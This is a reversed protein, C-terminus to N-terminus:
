RIKRQHHQHAIVAIGRRRKSRSGKGRGRHRLGLADALAESGPLEGRDVDGIQRAFRKHIRGACRNLMMRPDIRDGDPDIRVLRRAPEPRHRDGLPEV